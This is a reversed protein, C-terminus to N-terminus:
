IQFGCGRFQSIAFNQAFIFEKFKFGFIVVVLVEVPNKFTVDSTNYPIFCRKEIVNIPEEIKVSFSQRLREFIKGLM